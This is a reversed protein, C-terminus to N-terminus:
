ARYGLAASVDAAARVVIAVARQEKEPSTRNDPWGFVLDGIVRGTADRIPASVGVAGPFREGHSVVYGAM